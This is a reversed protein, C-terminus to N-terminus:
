RESTSSKEVKTQYKIMVKWVTLIANQRWGTDSTVSSTVPLHNQKASFSIASWPGSVERNQYIFHIGL